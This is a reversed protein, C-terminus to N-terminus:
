ASPSASSRLVLVLLLGAHGAFIENFIAPSTGVFAAIIATVVLGFAMWGYVKTIFAQQAAEDSRAGIRGASIAYDRESYM